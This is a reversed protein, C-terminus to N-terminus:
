QGKFVIGRWFERVSIIQVIGLLFLSDKLEGEIRIVTGARPNFLLILLIGLSLLIIMELGNEWREMKLLWQKDAKKKLNKLYHVYFILGLFVIKVFFIFYIFYQLGSKM